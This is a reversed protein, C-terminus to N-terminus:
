EKLSCNKDTQLERDQAQKGNCRNRRKEKNNGKKYKEKKFHINLDNTKLREYKRICAKVAIFKRRLVEKASNQLNWYTINENDKMEFYKRIDM